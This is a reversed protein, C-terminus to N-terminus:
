KTKSNKSLYSAVVNGYTEWNIQLCIADDTSVQFERMVQNLISSFIFGSILFNLLCEEENLMAM